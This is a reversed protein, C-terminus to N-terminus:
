SRHFLHSFFGGGAPQSRSPDADAPVLRFRGPGGSIVSEVESRFQRMEYDPGSPVRYGRQATTRRACFSNREVEVGDRYSQSPVVTLHGKIMFNDHPLALTGDSSGDGAVVPAADPQRTFARAMDITDSPIEKRNCTVIGIGVTFSM